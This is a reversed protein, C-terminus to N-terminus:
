YIRAKMFKRYDFKSKEPCKSVLLDINEDSININSSVILKKLNAKGGFFDLLAIPPVWGFGYQMAIDCDSINQAVHNAVFLSYVIYSVM